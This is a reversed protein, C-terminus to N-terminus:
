DFTSGAQPGSAERELTKVRRRSTNGKFSPQEDAGAATKRRSKWRALTKLLQDASRSGKAERANSALYGGGHAARPLRRIELLLRGCRDGGEPNSGPKSRETTSIETQKRHRECTCPCSAESYTTSEIGSDLGL